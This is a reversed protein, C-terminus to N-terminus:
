LKRNYNPAEVKLLEMLSGSSLPTSEILRRTNELQEFITPEKPNIPRSIPKRVVPGIVRNNTSHHM